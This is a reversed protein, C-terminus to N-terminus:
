QREIALGKKSKRFNLLCATFILIGSVIIVVYNINHTFIVTLLLGSAILLMIRENWNLKLAFFGVTLIVLGGILLLVSAFQQIDSSVGSFRMCIAPTYVFLFPLMFTPLVFKIAEKAGRLYDADAMKCAVMLGIGVPPTLHSFVAFYLPFLHAQLMPVGLQILAPSLVTACLIYVATSPVGMGLIMATVSTM